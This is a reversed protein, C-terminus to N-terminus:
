NGSPGEIREIVFVASPGTKLELKLGVRDRVTALLLEEGAAEPNWELYVTFYGALGTGNVVTTGIVDSLLAAIGKADTTALLQGNRIRAVPGGEGNGAPRVKLGRRSLKLAYFRKARHSGM